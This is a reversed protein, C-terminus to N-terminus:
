VEGVQAKLENRERVLARFKSQALRLDVTAAEIAELDIEAPTEFTNVCRRLATAADQAAQTQRGMDQELQTIRARVKIQMALDTM